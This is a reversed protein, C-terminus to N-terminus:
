VKRRTKDRYRTCTKAFRGCYYMKAKEGLLIKKRRKEEIQSTVSWTINKFLGLIKLFLCLYRKKHSKIQLAGASFSGMSAVVVPKKIRGIRKLLLTKYANIM